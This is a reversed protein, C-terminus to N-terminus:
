ICVIYNTIVIGLQETHLQCLTTFVTKVDPETEKNTWRNTPLISNFNSNLDKTKSYLSGLISGYVKPRSGIHDKSTSWTMYISGKYISRIFGKSINGRYIIYLIGV